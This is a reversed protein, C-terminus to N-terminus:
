NEAPVPPVPGDKLAPQPVLAGKLWRATGALRVFETNTQHQALFDGATRSDVGEKTLLLTYQALLESTTPANM